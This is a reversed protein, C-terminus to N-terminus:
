FRVAVGIGQRAPAISFASKRELKENYKLVASRKNKQAIETFVFGVLLSAASGIYYGTTDGDNNVATGLLFGSALIASFGVLEYTEGRRWHKFVEEDKKMLEKFELRTLRQDDKFYSVAFAGQFYSVEQGAVSQLCIGFLAIAILKKFPM